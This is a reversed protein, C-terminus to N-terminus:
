VSSAVFFIRSLPVFRPLVQALIPHIAQYHTVPLLLWCLISLEGESQGVSVNVDFIPPYCEKVIVATGVTPTTQM